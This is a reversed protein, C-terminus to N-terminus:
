ELPHCTGIKENCRGGGGTDGECIWYDANRWSGRPVTNWRKCHTVMRGNPPPAPYFCGFHACGPQYPRIWECCPPDDYIASSGTYTRCCPYPESPSFKIWGSPCVHEYDHCHPAQCCDTEGRAPDPNAPDLCTCAFAMIQWGLLAVVVFETIKRGLSVIAQM